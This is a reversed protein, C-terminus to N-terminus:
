KAFSVRLGTSLLVDNRLRGPQPNSLFRDSFTVHWGLWKKLATIASLDFNLRYQGTDSLNPFMRFSQTFSTVGSFKYLFDDGFNVEASNRGTGNMFKEHEYDGGGQVSLNAKDTKVANWGAGGGFVARLDLNQFRDHEYDNFVTLFIKPNLDRNYAWGGRIASATTSNVNNALSSAYIQNFHVAIKDHNTVRTAVFNNTLTAARANGRALALGLDYSGAWLQLVGPHQVREWAHQEAENRLATVDALPASKPTAAAVNLAEGSTSIKGKVSEGGPLVVVLEQDSTLTKVATWPISVEGLFESKFTLKGGDKKIVSGTITDGNKLVVQDASLLTGACLSLLLVRTHL